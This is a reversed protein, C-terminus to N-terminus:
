RRGVPRKPTTGTVSAAAPRVAPSLFWLVHRLLEGDDDGSGRTFLATTALFGDLRENSSAADTGTAQWVAHCPIKM